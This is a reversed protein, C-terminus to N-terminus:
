RGLHDHHRGAAWRLSTPDPGSRGLHPLAAAARPGRRAAAAGGGGPGSTARLDGEPLVGSSGPFTGTAIAQAPRRLFLWARAPCSQRGPGRVKGPGKLPVGREGCAEGAGWPVGRVGWVCEASGLGPGCPGWRMSPRPPYAAKGQRRGGAQPRRPRAAPGHSGWPHGQRHGHKRQAWVFPQGRRGPQM